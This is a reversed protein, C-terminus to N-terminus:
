KQPAGRINHWHRLITERKQWQDHGWHSWAIGCAAGGLHAAHDFLKWGLMLGLLDFGVIFKIATEAPFTFFPLFIIGLKTDPYQTCVYGLIAMIAGSAGLSLGPQNALIKYAYSTFSSIVGASLYLGLFQEKGLQDVAGVSFSHLVYMNALLHFGSYHSFTSLIMPWCIVKSAPNSCFYKLMTPQLHPVRWALFVLVNLACLPVFLKEAQTLSNWRTNLEKRISGAKYTSTKSKIWGMGPRIMKLAHARMNEYQWIAAGVYCSGSFAVTFVFPKWLASIHMPKSVLSCNNFPNNIPETELKPTEMRTRKFTRVSKPFKNHIVPRNCLASIEGISIMRRLAM